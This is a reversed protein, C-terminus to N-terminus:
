GRVAALAARIALAVVDPRQRPIAHGSDPVVIQTSDSSLAALAGQLEQQSLTRLRAEVEPPLGPALVDFTGATLVVLPRAGLAGADRAQAAAAPIDVGEANGAPDAVESTLYRRFGRLRESDGATEPPLAALARAWWDEHVADVLVMGIVAEPQDAVFRRAFLGGFSHAALIYPGPVGAARLLATLDAAVAAADRPRPAPDSQGLGARDYSCSRVGGALAAQVLDWTTHDGDLGSEFIVAPGQAGLGACHIYLRRGGISVLTGAELEAATPPAPTPTPAAPRGACGALLAALVIILLPTPLVLNEGRGGKKRLYHPLM